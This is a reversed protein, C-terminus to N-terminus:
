LRRKGARLLFEGSQRKLLLVDVSGYGKGIEHIAM